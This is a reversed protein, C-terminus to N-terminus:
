IIYWFIQKEGTGALGGIWDEVVGGVTAEVVDKDGLAGDGGCGGSVVVVVSDLLPPPPPDWCSGDM